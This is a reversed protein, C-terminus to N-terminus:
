KNNCNRNITKLCTTEDHLLTFNGTESTDNDLRNMNRLKQPVVIEIIDHILKTKMQRDSITTSMLSPSANVEILWPKLHSDILLDYGYCEFCHKDNNM